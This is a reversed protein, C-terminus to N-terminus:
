LNTQRRQIGQACLFLSAQVAADLGSFLLNPARRLLTGQLSFHGVLFVYLPTQAVSLSRRRPWQFLATDVGSLFLPTQVRASIAIRLVVYCHLLATPSGM